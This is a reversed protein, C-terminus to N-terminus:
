QNPCRIEESLDPRLTHIVKRICSSWSHSSRMLEHLNRIRDPSIMEVAATLISKLDSLDDAVVCLHARLDEPIAHFDNVVVSGPACLINFLKSPFFYAENLGLSYRLCFNWSARLQWALVVREPQFGHFVISESQMAVQRVHRELSGRGFVHLKQKIGCAVWQDVLIDIGNHPELAGAFVGVEELRQESGKMMQDAFDTIGGQFVFCKRPLFNFDDIIASSIPVIMDFRKSLVLSTREALARLGSKSLQAKGSEIHIDQIFIALASGRRCLRFLLLAINEFVYSNYQLCLQPRVVLLRMLLRLAFILHKLVPLNLYGIFEIAGETRSPAIFAGRPWFAQPTMVFCAAQEVGCQQRIDQFIQRQVQNGAVSSAQELEQSLPAFHGVFVIKM